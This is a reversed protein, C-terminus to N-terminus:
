CREDSALGACGRALRRADFALVKARDRNGSGAQGACGDYTAGERAKSRRSVWSHSTRQLGDERTLRYEVLVWEFGRPGRLDGSRRVVGSQWEGQYRSAFVGSRDDLVVARLSELYEDLTTGSPWEQREVAHWLYKLESPPLRDGGKLRTGRWSVGALRGRVEEVADPDFGARAVHELVRGLEDPRLTHAGTAAEIILRDAEARLRDPTAETM